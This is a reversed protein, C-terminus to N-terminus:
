PAKFCYPYVYPNWLFGPPCAYVPYPYVPYAPTFWYGYYGGGHYGGHYGGGHGWHGVAYVQGAQGSVITLGVVLVLIGIAIRSYLSVQL